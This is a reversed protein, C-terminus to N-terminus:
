FFMYGKLQEGSLLSEERPCSINLLDLSHPLLKNQPM